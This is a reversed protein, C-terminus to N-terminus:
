QQLLLAATIILFVTINDRHAPGIRGTALVLCIPDTLITLITSTAFFLRIRNRLCKRRKNCHPLIWSIHTTTAKLRRRGTEHTASIYKRM